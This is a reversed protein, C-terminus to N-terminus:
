STSDGPMTLIFLNLHQIKRLRTNTPHFLHLNDTSNISQCLQTWAWIWFWSFTLRQDFNHNENPDKDTGNHWVPHYSKEGGSAFASESVSQSFLPSCTPTFSSYVFEAVIQKKFLLFAFYLGLQLLSFLTVHTIKGILKVFVKQSHQMVHM